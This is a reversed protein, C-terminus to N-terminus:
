RGKRLLNCHEGVCSSACLKKSLYVNCHCAVKLVMAFFTMMLYNQSGEVQYLKVPPLSVYVTNFPPIDTCPFIVHCGQM